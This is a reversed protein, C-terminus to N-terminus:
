RTSRRAPVRSISDSGPPPVATQAVRGAMGISGDWSQDVVSRDAKEDDVVVRHNPVTQTAHEFTLFAELHYGLCGVPRVCDGLGPSM